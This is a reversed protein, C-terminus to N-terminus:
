RYRFALTGVSQGADACVEREATVAGSRTFTRGAPATVVVTYCGATVDFGFRGGSATVTDAVHAGRSGDPNTAYLVVAM